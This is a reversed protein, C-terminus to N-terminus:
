FKRLMQIMNCIIRADIIKLLRLFRKKSTKICNKCVRNSKVLRCYKSVHLWKNISDNTSDRRIICVPNIYRYWDNLVTINIGISLSIMFCIFGYWALIKATKHNNYWLKNMFISLFGKWVTMGLLYLPQVMVWRSNLLLVIM